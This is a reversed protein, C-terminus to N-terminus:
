QNGDARETKLPYGLWEEIQELWDAQEMDPAMVDRQIGGSIEIDVLRLNSSDLLESFEGLLREREPISSYRVEVLLEVEPLVKAAVGDEGIRAVSVCSGREPDSLAILASALWGATETANTHQTYLSGAQFSRGSLRIVYAAVGQRGTVVEHRSGAAAFVLCSDYERALAATLSHSDGSGGEADSVLLLDVNAIRGRQEHLNRLACVAVYNGGKMDCVGPGYVWGDDETFRPSYHAPSGTDLHGLLLLRAGPRRESRFMLHDGILERQYREVEFGLPQLWQAYVAGNRDVGAKDTTFADLNILRELEKFDM